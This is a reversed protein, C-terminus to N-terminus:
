STRKDVMFVSANSQKAYRKLETLVESVELASEFKRQRNTVAVVAITM